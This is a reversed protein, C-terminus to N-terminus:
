HGGGGVILFSEITAKGITRENWSHEVYEPGNDEIGNDTEIKNGVELVYISGRGKIFSECLTQMEMEMNQKEELEKSQQL